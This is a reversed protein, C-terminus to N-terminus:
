SGLKLRCIFRVRFMKFSGLYAIGVYFQPRWFRDSVDWTMPRGMFFTCIELATLVWGKSIHLSQIVVVQTLESNSIM